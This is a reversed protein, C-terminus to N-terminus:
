AFTTGAGLAAGDAFIHEAIRQKHFGTDGFSGALAWAKKMFIHLDVEWTYGMAGHVQISNKAALNAAECAVLKAHSVAESAGAADEALAYAARHVPAKAYELRVAVNAMHHKVAQFSGIPKGFQQRESSYQVSIDIMRQALGLAQAAAGLAGRDLVAQYLAQAQDGTAVPKADSGLEVAYLRRSPDVSPNYRTSFQEATLVYFAEPEAWLLLGAQAADEVLGNESCGVAVRLEGSAIRPLYESAAEGGLRSLVPVAVLATNVLPEPLAVYGCEQALLVFDLENMGLGGFDEPVTMGCLGLEALQQWLEADRGDDKEWSARVREPTVENVLFDRVSDRFLLQDESFTFDM